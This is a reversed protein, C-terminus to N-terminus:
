VNPVPPEKGLPLTHDPRSASQEGGELASTLFTPATGGRVGLAEMAHLLIVKGKKKDELMHQNNRHANEKLLGWLIFDLSLQDLSQPAWLNQSIIHGGFFENLM